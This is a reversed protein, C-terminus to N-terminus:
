GQGSTIEVLEAGREVAQGARVVVRRIIGGSPARIENEMKMAELVLLGAGASMQQGEEVEVRLVMGPMPAKVLGGGPRHTGQGALQRLSKSREDSVEVVWVRGGRQVEWESKARVLAYTRSVDGLVLRRLPSGPVTSLRGTLTKGGVRVTAGDVDVEFRRGEVVVEYRM